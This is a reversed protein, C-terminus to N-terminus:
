IVLPVRGALYQPITTGIGVSIHPVYLHPTRVCTRVYTRKRVYRRPVSTCVCASVHLPSVRTRVHTRVYTRVYLHYLYETAGSHKNTHCVPVYVYISYRMTCRVRTYTRSTGVGQGGQGSYFISFNCSAVGM